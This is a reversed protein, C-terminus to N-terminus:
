LKKQKGDLLGYRMKIVLAEKTSLTDLVEEIRERLIM